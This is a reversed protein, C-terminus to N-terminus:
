LVVGVARWVSRKPMAPFETSSGNQCVKMKRFSRPGVASYREENEPVRM